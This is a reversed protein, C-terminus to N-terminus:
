IKYDNFFNQDWLDQIKNKIKMIQLRKHFETEDLTLIDNLSIWKCQRIYRYEYDLHIDESRPFSDDSIFPVYLFYSVYIEKIHLNFNLEYCNLKDIYYDRSMVFTDKLKDLTEPSYYMDKNHLLETYLKNNTENPHEKLYFLCSTEESFERCAIEKANRDIADDRKGGFDNWGRNKATDPFVTKQFLFLLEGNLCTYPIIGAGQANNLVDYRIFKRDSNRDSRDSSRDSGFLSSGWSKSVDMDSPVRHKVPRKYDLSKSRFSNTNTENSSTSGTNSTDGSDSSTLPISIPKSKSSSM